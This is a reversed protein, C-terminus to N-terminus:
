PHLLTAPSILNNVQNKLPPRDLYRPLSGRVEVIPGDELEESEGSDDEYEDEGAAWEYLRQSDKLVPKQPTGFVRLQM